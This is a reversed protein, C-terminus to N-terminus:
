IFFSFKCGDTVWMFLRKIGERKKREKAIEGNKLKERKGAGGEIKIYNVPSHALCRELAQPFQNVDPTHM